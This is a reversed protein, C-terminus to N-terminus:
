LQVKLLLDSSLGTEYGFRAWLLGVVVHKKSSAHNAEQPTQDACTRACKKGSPASLGHTPPVLTTKGPNNQRRQHFVTRGGPPAPNRKKHPDGMKRVLPPLFVGRSMAGYWTGIRVQTMKASAMMCVLELVNQLTGTTRGRPNRRASGLSVRCAMAHAPPAFFCLRASSPGPTFNKNGFAINPQLTGPLLKQFPTSRTPSSHPAAIHGTVSM